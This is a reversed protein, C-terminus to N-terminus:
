GAVRPSENGLSTRAAIQARIAHVPQETTTFSPSDILAGVSEVPTPLVAPEPERPARPGEGPSSDLASAGLADVVKALTLSVVAATRITRRAGEIAALASISLVTIPGWIELATTALPVAALAAAAILSVGPLSDIQLRREVRLLCRNSGHDEVLVRLDLAAWNTIAVRVDRDTQWGDDPQISSSPIRARLRECLAGLVTEASIWRECWYRRERTALFHVALRVQAFRGRVQIKAPSLPHIPHPSRGRRRGAARALPQAFHLWAIAAQCVLRSTRASLRGIRPISEVNSARAYRVCRSGTVGLGAGGLLALAAGVSFMSALVFLLGVLPLAMSAIAWAATHPWWSFGHAHLQYVSPFASTGWVGTNLRRRTLARLYALPSYIHGHWRIGAQTFKDPHHPRLWAEGEGYGVQQRWFARLSPRPHHWVIATPAFGIRWGRAQLRWCVDVDDGARLFTPNFGQIARLSEVWFAMNCGPVHEAIRDDLLVHTPGGPARGVCQALWSDEPPLLNPGGVGVVDSRLLPQILNDLWDPEVRVDADTYAIIAGTACELGVNRAASLGGNPIDIVKVRAFSRAIQGTADKSGDNVVLIELDPYELTELSTLCEDLTDAANYACVVVSVKPWCVREAESFPAQAYVDAVATLAPKPRRKRDVLGFAWDTIPHGGRWWDDTWAFAVAGCAGETFAARLQMSTLAAQGEEGHRISDAGAEALLLPRDGSLVQLRAVYALLDAERHLYVNFAVLDLFPLELYDTPPYNVYTFLCEPAASKLDDYVEGLFQEVRAAGHWRVIPAPIENGIAILAVNPHSGLSRVQAVLDRRITARLRADDLFAIHQAWPLGVMVRLGHHAAIEILSADPVTYTRVTNIGVRAMMTLDRQVQDLRPFMSGDTSPEFTGYTVGKIWFRRGEAQLLKGCLKVRPPPGEPLSPQPRFHRMMEM